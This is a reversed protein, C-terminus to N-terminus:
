PSRVVFFYIDLNIKSIQSGGKKGKLYKPLHQQRRNKGTQRQQFPCRNFGCVVIQIQTKSKHSQFPKYKPDQM